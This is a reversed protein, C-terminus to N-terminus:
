VPIELVRVSSEIPAAPENERRVLLVNARALTYIDASGKWELPTVRGDPQLIAPQYFERPGNAPLAAALTGTRWREPDAASGGGLRELLRGCLRITCAFASVPNGPLGFVFRGMPMTAFVFPKGPKIKLKTILLQAGIEALVRPVYDYEGMSMGGSVMLVDSDRLASLMSERIKEPDDGVWGADRAEFGLRSLLSLLMPGNSNRIQAEGPVHEIPVLEDGSSLVAVRPRAFVEVEVAGVTAAVAIAAPSLRQGRTLVIRGAPCDSGRRAIFKGPIAPGRLTVEEDGVAPQLRSELFEVPVIADAGAPMPAGTFISMCTGAQVTQTPAVGAAVEGIL